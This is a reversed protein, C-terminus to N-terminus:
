SALLRILHILEIENIGAEVVKSIHSGIKAYNNQRFSRPCLPCKMDVKTRFDTGGYEANFATAGEPLPENGSLSLVGSKPTKKQSRTEPRIPGIGAVEPSDTVEWTAVIAKKQKPHELNTCVIRVYSSTVLETRKTNKQDSM